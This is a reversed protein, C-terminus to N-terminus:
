YFFIIAKFFLTIVCSAITNYHPLRSNTLMHSIKKRKDFLACAVINLWTRANLSHQTVSYVNFHFINFTQGDFVFFKKKNIKKENRKLKISFINRFFLLLWHGSSCIIMPKSTHLKEYIFHSAFRTRHDRWRQLNSDPVIFSHHTFKSYLKRGWINYCRM